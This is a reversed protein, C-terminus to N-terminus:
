SLMTEWVNKGQECFLRLKVLCQLSVKQGTIVLAKRRLRASFQSLMQWSGSLQYRELEWCWQFIVHLLGMIHDALEKLVSPHIGDPRVSKMWNSCYIKSCRWLKYLRWTVPSCPDMGPGMVQTLPLFPVLCRQETWMGIESTVSRMLYHVLMIETKYIYRDWIYVSIYVYIETYGKAASRKLFGNQKGGCHQGAQISM